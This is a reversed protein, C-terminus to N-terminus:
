SAGPARTSGCSPPQRRDGRDTPRGASGGGAHGGRDPDTGPRGFAPRWAVVVVCVLSPLYSVAVDIADAWRSRPRRPNVPAVADVVAGAAVCLFGAVLFLDPLNGARYIDAGSEYGYLSIGILYIGLGLGIRLLRIRAAVDVHILMFFFCAVVVISLGSEASAVVHAFGSGAGTRNASSSATVGGITLTSAGVLMADLVPRLREPAAWTSRMGDMLATLALAPFLVFGIDAPSPFAPLAGTEAQHVAWYGAGAAWALAGLGFLLWTRDLTGVRCRSRWVCALGAAGAAVTQGFNGLDEVAYTPLSVVRLCVFYVGVVAVLIAIVARRVIM